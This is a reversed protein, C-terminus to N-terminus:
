VEKPFKIILISVTLEDELSANTTSEVVLVDLRAVLVLVHKVLHPSRLHNVIFIM